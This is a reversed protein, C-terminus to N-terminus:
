FSAPLASFSTGTFGGSFAAPPAFPTSPVGGGAASPFSLGGGGGGQLQSLFAYNNLGGGIANAAGSIGGSAAAGQALLSNAQSTGSSALLNSAANAYNQGAGVGTAVSQQGAGALGSLRNYAETDRAITSNYIDSAIGYRRLMDSAKRAYASGYETSALGSAYQTAERLANGSLTMGSARQRGALANIGEDLRFRYSPDAELEAQSLTIPQGFETGPDFAPLRSQDNAANYTWDGGASVDQRYYDAGSFVGAAHAAELSGYGFFQNGSSPVDISNKPAFRPDPAAQGTEEQPAQEFGLRRLLENTAATGAIRFPALDSRNQQYIERQFDIAERNAAAQADAASKAGKAQQNSGIISGAAGIGAAVIPIAAPM